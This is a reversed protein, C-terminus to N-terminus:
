SCLARTEASWPCQAKKESIDSAKPRMGSCNSRRRQPSSTGPGAARRARCAEVQAHSFSRPTCSLKSSPSLKLMQSGVGPLHLRHRSFGLGRLSRFLRINNKDLGGGCSKWSLGSGLARGPVGKYTLHGCSSKHAYTCILCVYTHIYTHICTHISMTLYM